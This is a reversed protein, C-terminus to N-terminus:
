PSEMKKDCYLIQQHSWSIEDLLYFIEIVITIFVFLYEMMLLLWFIIFIFNMNPQMITVSSQSFAIGIPIQNMSHFNM